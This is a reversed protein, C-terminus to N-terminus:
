LAFRRSVRGVRTGDALRWDPEQAYDAFGIRAYYALGPANDARITANLTKVGAAKAATRTAAFLATGTGKAQTGPAVFTAIDGWGSPLSPSRDVAQFGILKGGSEAIHCTILGPGNIYWDTIAPETVRHQHATTGGIAIIQNLIEAMAAADAPTAPRILM